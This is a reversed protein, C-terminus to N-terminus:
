VLPFTPRFSVKTEGDFNNSPPHDCGRAGGEYHSITLGQINDSTGM